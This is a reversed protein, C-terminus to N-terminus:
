RDIYLPLEGARLECPQREGALFCRFTWCIRLRETRTSRPGILSCNSLDLKKIDDGLEGINSPLTFGIKKVVVFISPRESM